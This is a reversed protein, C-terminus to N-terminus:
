YKDIRNVIGRHKHQPNVEKERAKNAEHEYNHKDDYTVFKNHRDMLQDDFISFNFIDIM